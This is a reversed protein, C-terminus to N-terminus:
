AKGRNRFKSRASHQVEPSTQSVPQTPASMSPPADEDEFAARAAAAEAARRRAIEEAEAKIRAAKEDKRKEKQYKGLADGSGISGLNIRAGIMKEVMTPKPFSM